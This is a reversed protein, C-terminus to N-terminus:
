GIDHDEPHSDPASIDGEQAVPLNKLRRPGFNGYTAAWLGNLGLGLVPVLVGFALTSGRSSGEVARAAAEASVTNPRSLATAISVVCQTALCSHMVWKVKKPIAKGLLFYLEAVSIEQERSRQVATWYSWIFAAIGVTFLGLAVYVGQTKAAGEFIIAASVASISFVITGIVNARLINIGKM